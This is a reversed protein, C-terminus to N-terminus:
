RSGTSAAEPQGATVRRLFPIVANSVADPNDAFPWHGSDELVVLESGFSKAVDEAFRVPIYPDHKGWVVLMPRDLERLVPVLPAQLDHPSARYLKLVARKTGRDFDDYMRDVFERPLGRPNGEKLLLRFAPRSATGMFVEGLIPTRWIRASRHWRPFSLMGSNIVVVSAFADQHEAAWQLGWPGGFDHVVLHVRDIGLERRFAELFRAYGSVTYDFDRPKGAHGFGPMDPAVARAFEGTEEVLREWDHSSGPNGHLFVVADRSDVPGAQLYPSTVGEIQVSPSM